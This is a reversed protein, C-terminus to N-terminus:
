GLHSKLSNIHDQLEGIRKDKEEILDKFLQIVNPIDSTSSSGTNQPYKPLEENLQNLEEESDITKFFIEPRVELIQCFRLLQSIQISDKSLIKHLNQETTEMLNSIERKSFGKSEILYKLKHGIHMNYSQM